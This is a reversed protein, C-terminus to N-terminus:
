KPVRLELGRIDHDWTDVMAAPDHVRGAWPDHGDGRHAALSYQGPLIGNFAFRGDATTFVVNLPSLVPCELPVLVVAFGEPAEVGAIRGDITRKPVIPISIAAPESPITLDLAAIRGYCSGNSARATVEYVTPPLSNIKVPSVGSINRLISSSSPLWGDRSTLSIEFDQGCTNPSVGSTPPRVAAFIAGGEEMGVNLHDLDAGDLAIQVAGFFRGSNGASIPGQALLRYSGSRLNEIRFGGDPRTMVNAVVFWPLESSVLRLVAPVGRQAVNGSITRQHGEPIFLDVGTYEEGGTVTFDRAQRSTPYLSLGRDASGDLARSWLGVLYKGPPLGFIRYEGGDSVASSWFPPATPRGALGGRVSASVAVVQGPLAPEVRGAVVGFRFLRIVRSTDVDISASDTQAMLRLTASIYYTKLCEVRYEGPSVGRVLFRGMRDTVTEIVHTRGGTSIHVSVQSIPAGTQDELVTGGVVAGGVSGVCLFCLGSKCLFQIATIANAWNLM